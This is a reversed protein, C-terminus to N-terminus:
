LLQCFLVHTHVYYNNVHVNYMCTGIYTAEFPSVSLSQTFMTRHYDYYSATSLSADLWAGGLM